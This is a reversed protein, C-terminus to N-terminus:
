CYMEKLNQKIKRIVEKKQTNKKKNRLIVFIKNKKSLNELINLGIFGSSGTLLIKYM